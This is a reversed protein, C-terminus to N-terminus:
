IEFKPLKGSQRAVIEDALRYIFEATEIPGCLEELAAKAADVTGCAVSIARKHGITDATKVFQIAIRKATDFRLTDTM